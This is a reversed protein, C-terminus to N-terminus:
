CAETVVLRSLQSRALARAEAACLVRDSRAFRRPITPGVLWPPLGVAPASRLGPQGAFQGRLPTIPKSWPCTLGAAKTASGGKNEASATELGRSVQPMYALDAIPNTQRLRRM